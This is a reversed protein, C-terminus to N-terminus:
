GNVLSVEEYEIDQDQELSIEGFGMGQISMIIAFVAVITFLAIYNFADILKNKKVKSM